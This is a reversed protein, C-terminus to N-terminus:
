NIKKFKFIFNFAQCRRISRIIMDVQDLFQCQIKSITLSVAMNLIEKISFFM